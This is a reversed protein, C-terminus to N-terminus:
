ILWVLSQQKQQKCIHDPGCVAVIGWHEFMRPRSGGLYGGKHSSATYLVGRVCTRARVKRTVDFAMIAANAQYFYSPHLEQFQEQGATDWFDISINRGDM